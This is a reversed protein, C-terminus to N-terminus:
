LGRGVRHHPILLTLQNFYHCDTLVDLRKFLFCLDPTLTLFVLM